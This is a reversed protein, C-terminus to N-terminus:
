EVVIKVIEEGEITTLFYVGKSLASLNVESFSNEVKGQYVTVGYIDSVKIMSSKKDVLSVVVLGNSPNPYVIIKGVTKEKVVSTTTSYVYPLSEASCTGDSYVVTYSGSANIALVQNTEGVLLVNDLYWQNGTPNNSSLTMAILDPTILPASPNANVSVTVSSQASCPGDTITLTYTGADMTSIASVTPNQITSSYGNPGSWAYSAGSITNAVFNLTGNECLSVSTLNNVLANATISTTVAMTIGSSLVTSQTICTANSTLECTVVEGNALSTSTYTTSNTGVTTGNVKWKYIPASGANTSNATFTVSSGSCTTNSGSTVAISISPTSNATVNMIIANSAVTSATVCTLSSMLNCTVSASNSLSSSTFVDSNTGVTVGNVKWQYVPTSGGNVPSAKFTISNGACMTSSGFTVAISVSPTSNATVSMTITSSTGVSSTVCSANSTLECVVVDLDILNSNSYTASNSGVNNGNLKWQYVPSSGGNTPTATFTVPAGACTTGSGSTITIAVSPTVPASVNVTIGSSVATTSTVCTITSTLVCTVVDSNNLMSTTYSTSNTGVNNGNVKWQYVPTAGGNTPTATFVITSGSCMTSSGSTVNIVISPTVVPTVDMTIGSSTATSSSACTANTTMVCTLVNGDQLSTSTYTATNTGVNTGDVKWQYAPTTGGNTPTATVSISSGACMTTNGSTVAIVVSPVVSPNANVTLLASRSYQSCTSSTIVCRYLYGNLAATANVALSSSTVGSYTTTNALSTYGGGGVKVQWQYSLSTGSAVVSFSTSGSTCVTANSPQSSITVAPCNQVAFSSMFPFGSDFYGYSVNGFDQKKTFTSSAYDYEFIVGGGGGAGGRITMGYLKGNNEVLNANPNAGNAAGSFDVKKTLINNVYDYQFLTGMNNTGNLETMAYMMGDEAVVLAGKPNSGSAASFSQKLTLLNSAYDYEYIVGVSNAGGVSTMGYFKGNPAKIMEGWPISGTTSASLDIKKTYTTSTYDFEFIVGNSNAGGNLTVGLLKGPTVEILKAFAQYGNAVTFDYLKTVVGTASNLEFLTGRNNVGNQETVGYIKGNAAQMLNGHPYRGTTTTFHHVVSFSNNVIDFKWLTGFGNAGRDNCTGYLNGDSAILPSGTPQTGESLIFSHKNTWVNTVPDFVILIGNTSTGSPNNAGGNSLVTWLKQQSMSLHSMLMTVFILLLIKKM